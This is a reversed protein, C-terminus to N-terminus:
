EVLSAQSGQQLSLLPMVGQPLGTGTGTRSSLEQSRSSFTGLKQQHSNIVASSNHPTLGTPDSFTTLSTGPRLTPTRPSMASRDVLPPAAWARSHWDSEDIQGVTINGFVRGERRGMCHVDAEFAKTVVSGRSGTMGYLPVVAQGLVDDRTLNDHDFLLLYLYEGDLFTRGGFEVRLALTEKWKPSLSRRVRSTRPRGETFSCLVELYPDSKGNTDLALLGEARLQSLQVILCQEEEEKPLLLFQERVRLSFLATVPKHDSSMVEPVMDYIETAVASEVPHTHLKSRLVRDCWSPVREPNYDRLASDVEGGRKLAKRKPVMKFTPPFYPGPMMHSVYLHSEQAPGAEVFSPLLQQKNGSRGAGFSWMAKLLQDDQRLYEYKERQKDPQHELRHIDAITNIVEAKDKIKVHKVWDSSLGSSDDKTDLRYNLDGAWFCHRYEVHFFLNSTGLHMSVGEIIEDIDSARRAMELQHAALHSGVFCFPTECFKMAICVGGKNGGVHLLGTAEEKKSVDSVLHMHKRKTFIILRTQWMTLGEVVLFDDGGDLADTGPRTNLTRLVTMFWDDECSLYPARPAYDCEQAAICVLDADRATGLWPNLSGDEGPPHNGVNWTGVYVKIDRKRLGMRRSTRTRSDEMAEEEEICLRLLAILSCFHEKDSLTEFLLRRPKEWSFSYPLGYKKKVVPARRLYAVKPEDRSTPREVTFSGPTDLSFSDVVIHRNEGDRAALIVKQANCQVVVLVQKGSEIKAPFVQEGELVSRDIARETSQRSLVTEAWKQFRTAYYLPEKASAADGYMIDKLGAETRKRADYPTLIDIIGVYFVEECDSSPLGGQHSQYVTPHPYVAPRAAVTRQNNVEVSPMVSQVSLTETYDCEDSGVVPDLDIMKLGSFSNKEAGPTSADWNTGEDMIGMEGNCAEGEEEEGEELGPAIRVPISRLTETHATSLYRFTTCKPVKGMNDDADPEDASEETSDASTAADEGYPDHPSGTQRWPHKVTTRAGGALEPCCICCLTFIGRCCSSEKAVVNSDQVRALEQVNHLLAKADVPREGRPPVRSDSTTGLLLSYDTCTHDRLFEIDARLQDHLQDHWEFSLPFLRKVDLDKLAVGKGRKEEPVHRGHSSGKLDYLQKIELQPRFVNGMVVFTIKGRGPSHLASLQYYRTLLTDPSSLVYAAYDLLISRLHESEASTITKVIFRADYSAFFFCGSSGSTVLQQLSTLSGTLMNILLANLGLSQMYHQPEIGAERRIMRFVQPAYDCFVTQHGQVTYDASVRKYRYFETEARLHSETLQQHEEERLCGGVKLFKVKEAVQEKGIDFEPRREDQDLMAAHRIGDLLDVVLAWDPHGFTIFRDEQLMSVAASPLEGEGEQRKLKRFAKEVQPTRTLATCFEDFNLYGDRDRDILSFLRDALGSEGLTNRPSSPTPSAFGDGDVRPPPAVTERLVDRANQGSLQLFVLIMTKFEKADIKGNGDADFLTFTFELGKRPDTRGQLLMSMGALFEVFCVQGDGNSDFARFFALPLDHSLFLPGFADCLEKSEITGSGDTDISHFHDLLRRTVVASLGTGEVTNRASSKMRVWYRSGALRGSGREESAMRRSKGPGLEGSPTKMAPPCSFTRQTLSRRQSYTDTSATRSMQMRAQNRLRDSFQHKVRNVAPTLSRLWAELVLKYSYDGVQDTAKFVLMCLQQGLPCAIMKGKDLVKTTVLFQLGTTGRSGIGGGIRYAVRICEYPVHSLMEVKRVSGRRGPMPSNTSVGKFIFSTTTILCLCRCEEVTDKLSNRLGSGSEVQRYQCFGECVGLIYDVSNWDKLGLHLIRPLTYADSDKKEYYLTWTSYMVHSALAAVVTQPLRWHGQGASEAAKPFVTMVETWMTCAEAAGKGQSLAADEMATGRAIHWLFLFLRCLRRPDKPSEPLHRFQVGVTIAGLPTAFGHHPSNLILVREDIGLQYEEVGLPVDDFRVEVKEESQEQIFTVRTRFVAISGTVWGRSPHRYQIGVASFWLEETEAGEETTEGELGRKWSQAEIDELAM